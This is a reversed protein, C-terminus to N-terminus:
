CGRCVAKLERIAPDVIEILDVQYKLNKHEVRTNTALETREDSFVFHERTEDATNCQLVYFNVKM